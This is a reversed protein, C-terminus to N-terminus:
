RTPRDGRRPWHPKRQAGASPWHQPPTTCRPNSNSVACSAGLRAWRKHRAQRWQLHWHRKNPPPCTPWASASRAPAVAKQASRSRCGRRCRGARGARRAHDQSCESGTCARRAGGPVPCRAHQDHAEAVGLVQVHHGGAQAALALLPSRGKMPSIPLWVLHAVKLLRRCSRPNAGSASSACTVQGMPMGPMPPLSGSTIATATAACNNCVSCGARSPQASSPLEPGSHGLNPSSM